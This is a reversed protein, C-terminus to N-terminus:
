TTRCEDALSPLSERHNGHRCCWTFLTRTIVLLVLKLTLIVTVSINCPVFDVFWPFSCDSTTLLCDTSPTTYQAQLQSATSLFPQQRTTTTSLSSCDICWNLSVSVECSVRESYCRRSASPKRATTSWSRHRRVSSRRRLPSSRMLRVCWTKKNCSHDCLTVDYPNSARGYRTIQTVCAHGRM